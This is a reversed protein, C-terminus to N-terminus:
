YKAANKTTELRKQPRIHDSRIEAKCFQKTSYQSRVASQLTVAKTVKRKILFTKIARSLISSAVRIKNLQNRFVFARYIAQIKAAVTTYLGANLRLKNFSLKNTRKLLYNKIICKAKLEAYKSETLILQKFRSIIQLFSHVSQSKTTKILRIKDLLATMFIRKKYIYYKNTLKKLSAFEFKEKKAPVVLSCIPNHDTMQITITKKKSVKPLNNVSEIFKSMLRETIKKEIEQLQEKRREKPTPLRVKDELLITSRRELPELRIGSTPIIKRGTDISLSDLSTRHSLRLSKLKSIRDTM